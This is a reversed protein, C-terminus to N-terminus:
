EGQHQQESRHQQLRPRRGVGVHVEQASRCRPLPPRSSSASCSTTGSSYWPRELYIRLGRGVRTSTRKDDSASWKFTPVIYVVKPPLPRASSPINVLNAEPGKTTILDIQKTLEAPFYERYRTTAIAYYNVWRHKTDGFEHRAPECLRPDPIKAVPEEYQVDRHLVRGGHDEPESKPKYLWDVHETWKGYLDLLGTSHSHNQIMPTITAFTEGPNRFIDKQTILVVPDALPKQVAHVFTLERWPTIMWHLGGPANGRGADSMASWLAMVDLSAPDIASAIKVTHITAPPLTVTMVDLSHSVDISAGSQLELRFPQFSPWADIGSYMQKYVNGPPLGQFVAGIALPDPLYPLSVLAGPQAGVLRPSSCRRPDM